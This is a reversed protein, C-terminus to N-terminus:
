RSMLLYRLRFPTEIAANGFRLKPVLDHLSRSVHLLLVSCSLDWRWNSDCRVKCGARSKVISSGPIFRRELFPRPIKEGNALPKVRRFSVASGVRRLVKESSSLRLFLIKSIIEHKSRLRQSPSTALCIRHM